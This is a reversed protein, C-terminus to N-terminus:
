SSGESKKKYYALAYVLPLWLLPFAQIIFSDRLFPYDQRMAFLRCLSRIILILYLLEPLVALRKWGRMGCLIEVLTLVLVLCLGFSLASNWFYFSM